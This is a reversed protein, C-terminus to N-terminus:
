DACSRENGGGWSVQLAKTLAPLPKALVPLPLLPARM